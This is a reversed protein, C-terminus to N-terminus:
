SVLVLGFQSANFGAQTWPIGTAPDQDMAFFNYLYTDGSSILPGNAVGHTTQQMTRTGEADKRNLVGYHIFPITGTFPNIPEWLFNAVDTPTDSEIYITDDNTEPFQDNVHDWLTSTVGGVATWNNGAVDARPFILQYMMDGIFTNVSGSGSGDAIYFDTAYASNSSSWFLQHTNAKTEQLLTNAADVNTSATGTLIQVGNLRFTVTAMIPATGTLQVGVEFYYWTNANLAIGSASSNAILNLNNGALISITGDDEVRVTALTASSSRAASLNYVIAGALPSNVYVAWGVFWSSQYTLTKSIGNNLLIARTSRGAPAVASQAGNIINATWKLGIYSSEDYHLTSDGFQAAM